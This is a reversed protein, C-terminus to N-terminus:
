GSAFLIPSADKIAGVLITVVSQFPRNNELVSMCLFKGCFSDGGKSWLPQNGEFFV